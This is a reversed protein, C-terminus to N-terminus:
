TDVIRASALPDSQAHLREAQFDHISCDLKKRALSYLDPVVVEGREEGQKPLLIRQANKCPLVPM